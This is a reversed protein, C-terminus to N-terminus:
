LLEPEEEPEPAATVVADGNTPTTTAAAAVPVYETAQQAGVPATYGSDAPGAEKPKDKDLIKYAEDLVMRLAVTQKECITELMMRMTSMFAQWRLRRLARTLAYALWRM